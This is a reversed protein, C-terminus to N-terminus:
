EKLLKEIFNDLDEELNKMLEESDFILTNDDVLYLESITEKMEDVLELSYPHLLSLSELLERHEHICSLLTEKVTTLFAEDKNDIWEDIVASCIEEDDDTLLVLEGSESRFQISIDTLTKEESDSPFRKSLEKLVENVQTLTQKSVEM